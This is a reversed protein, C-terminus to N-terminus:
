DDLLRADAAQHVSAVVVDLRALPDERQYSGDDLIDVIGTLIRFPAL